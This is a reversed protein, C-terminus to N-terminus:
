DLLRSVEDAAMAATDPVVAPATARSSLTALATRWDGSWLAETPVELAWTQRGLWDALVPDEPFGDRRAWALLAGNAACDGLIGYGSKALVANSASLADLFGLNAPLSAVDSRSGALPTPSLYRLGDERPPLLVRDLLPPRLALLVCRDEPALGLANRIESRDRSARRGVVGMSIRRPFAPMPAAPTLELLLSAREYACRAAEAAHELGM